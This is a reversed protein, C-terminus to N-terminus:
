RPPAAARIIGGLATVAQAVQAYREGPEKALMRLLVQDLEGSLQPNLYSPPVADVQLHQVALGRPTEDQFPLEGTLWEYLIIGLSYQDSAFSLPKGQIQEPSMYALTGLVGGDGTMREQGLQISIGLDMIKIVGSETLFLNEPKLDRHIIDNQHLYGLGAGLQELLEPTLPPRKRRLTHGRLLEMVLGVEGDMELPEYLLALNPHRLRANLRVEAHFRLRAERTLGARLSLLKIAVQQEPQRTMVARYVKAMGGVGLLEVLYYAGVARGINADVGVELSSLFEAQLRAQRQRRRAWLGGALALLAAGSLLPVLPHLQLWGSWTLAELTGLDLELSHRLQDAQIVTHVDRFGEKRILLPYQTVQRYLPGEPGYVLRVPQGTYFDCVFRKRGWCVQAGEPRTHLLVQVEQARATALLLLGLWCYKM